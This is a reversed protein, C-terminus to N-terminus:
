LLKPVTNLMSAVVTRRSHAHLLTISAICQKCAFQRQQVIAFFYCNSIRSVSTKTFTLLYLTQTIIGNGHARHACPLVCTDLVDIFVSVYTAATTKTKVNTHICHRSRQTWCRRVWGARSIRDGCGFYPVFFFTFYPVCEFSPFGLKWWRERLVSRQFGVGVYFYKWTRENHGWSAGSRLETNCVRQAIPWINFKRSGRWERLAPRSPAQFGEGLVIITEQM